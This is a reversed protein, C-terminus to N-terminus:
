MIAVHEPRLRELGDLSDDVDAADPDNRSRTTTRKMRLVDGALGKSPGRSVASSGPPWTGAGRRSKTRQQNFTPVESRM